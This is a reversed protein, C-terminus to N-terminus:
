LFLNILIHKAPLNWSQYCNFNEPSTHDLQHSLSNTLLQTWIGGPHLQNAVRVAGPHYIIFKWSTVIKKAM